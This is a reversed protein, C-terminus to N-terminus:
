LAFSYDGGNGSGNYTALWNLAGTSSNYKALFMDRTPNFMWGTLYVFGANDTTIASPVDNLNASGALRRVWMTDGTFPNLKVTLVDSNGAILSSTGAVYIFGSNDVTLWVSSDQVGAPNNYRSVWVPQSALDRYSLAVVLLLISLAFSYGKSKDM